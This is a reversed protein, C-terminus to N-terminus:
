SGYSVAGFPCPLNVPLIGRSTALRSRRSSLDWCSIRRSRDGVPVERVKPHRFLQSCLYGLRTSGMGRKFARVWPTGDCRIFSWCSVMKAMESVPISIYCLCNNEGMGWVSQRSSGYLSPHGEATLVVLHDFNAARDPRRFRQPRVSRAFRGGPRM